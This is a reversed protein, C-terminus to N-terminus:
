QLTVKVPRGDKVFLIGSTVITDGPRLGQEVLVERPTRSGLVVPVSRAVGGEVRFVNAGKMDQMVSETPVFIANPREDLGMNVDAFTGVTVGRPVDIRARVRQTRTRVDVAPEIAVVRATREITDTGRVRFRLLGGTRLSAAYREPVSCDVNLVGVSTLTAVVTQPTIVAGVSVNRLGVRGAFPARVETKAIQADVEDIEAQRMDVQAAAQEYEDLSAGDVSRLKELRAKRNRDLALQQVLKARRAVLDADALKVLVQGAAVDAGERFAIKTIRGGVEPRLEVSQDAVISGTLTVAETFPRATVVAAVVTTPRNAPSAAAPGKEPSTPRGAFYWAAVGVGVLVAAVLLIRRLTM